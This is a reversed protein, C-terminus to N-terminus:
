GRVIRLTGSERLIKSIYSKSRECLVVNGRKAQYSRSGIGEISESAVGSEAPTEAGMHRLLHLAQEAVAGLHAPNEGDLELGPVENTVDDSASVGAAARQADPFALWEAGSLREAFYADIQAATIM